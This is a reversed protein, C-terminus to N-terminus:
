ARFRLSANVYILSSLRILYIANNTKQKDNNAETNIIDNGLNFTSGTKNPYIPKTGLGLNCCRLIYCYFKYYYPISM